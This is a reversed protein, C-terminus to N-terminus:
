LFKVFFSQSSNSDRLVFPSSLKIILNMLACLEVTHQTLIFKVRFNFLYCNKKEKKCNKFKM